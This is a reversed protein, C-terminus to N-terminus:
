MFVFITQELYKDPMLQILPLQYLKTKNHSLCLLIISLSQQSLDLHKIVLFLKLKTL